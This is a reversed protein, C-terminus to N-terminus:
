RRTSSCSSLGINSHKDLTCRAGVRRHKLLSTLSTLKGIYGALLIKDTEIANTNRNWLAFIM